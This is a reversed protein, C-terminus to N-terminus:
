RLRRHDVRAHIYENDNWRGIANEVAMKPMPGAQHGVLQIFISWQQDYVATNRSGPKSTWPSVGALTETMWVQSAYIEGADTRRRNHWFDNFQSANPTLVHEPYHPITYPAM